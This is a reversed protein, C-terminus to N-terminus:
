WLLKLGYRAYVALHADKSILILTGQIAQWALMRDFPDKHEERPLQHFSAAVEPTLPWLEFDLARLATPLDDPCKGQMDLKGLAYKMSVEWLSVPSVYIQHTSEAIASAATPSLKEPAAVSWLFSHTDLLYKV